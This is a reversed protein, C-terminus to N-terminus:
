RPRSLQTAVLGGFLFLFGFPVATMFFMALDDHDLFLLTFGTVMGFVTMILGTWVGIVGAKHM